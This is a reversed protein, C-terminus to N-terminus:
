SRSQCGFKTCVMCDVIRPSIGWFSGCFPYSWSEQIVQSGFGVLSIIASEGVWPNVCGGMGRKPPDQSGNIMMIYLCYQQHCGSIRRDGTSTPLKPLKDWYKGPKLVMGPPAPNWGDVTDIWQNSKTLIMSSWTWGMEFHIKFICCKRCFGTNFFVIDFGSHIYKCICMYIYIIYM